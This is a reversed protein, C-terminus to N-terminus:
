PSGCGGGLSLTQPLRSAGGGQQERMDQYRAKDIVVGKSGTKGETGGREWVSCLGARPAM